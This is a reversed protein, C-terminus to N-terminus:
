GIERGRHDETCLALWVDLLSSRFPMTFSTLMAPRVDGDRNFSFLDKSLPCFQITKAWSWSEVQPLLPPAPRKGSGPTRSATVAGGAAGRPSLPNGRGPYAGGPEGGRLVQTLSGRGSSPGGGPTHGGAPDPPAALVHLRLGSTLLSSPARTAHPTVRPFRGHGAPYRTCPARSPRRRRSFCGCLGARRGPGGPRPPLRERRGWRGRATRRGRGAAVPPAPAHPRRSATGSGSVARAPPPSKTGPPPPRPRRPTGRAPRPESRRAAGAASPPAARPVAGPSAALRPPGARLPASDRPAGRPTLPRGSAAPRRAARGSGFNAFDPPERRQPPPPCPQPPRPRHRLLRPRLPRPAPRRRCCCWLAGIGTARPAM